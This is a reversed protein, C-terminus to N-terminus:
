NLKTHKLVGDLYFGYNCHLYLVMRCNVEPLMMHRRALGMNICIVKTRENKNSVRKITIAYNKITTLICGSFNIAKIFLYCYFTLIYSIGRFIEKGKKLNEYSYQM